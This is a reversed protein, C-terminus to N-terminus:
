FAMGDSIRAWGSERRKELTSKHKAGSMAMGRVADMIHSWKDHAPKDRWVERHADWDKSYNHFGGLTYTCRSDIWLNPLISRVREIGDLIGTRKLVIVNNVGLERLRSLRTKGTSLERVKVDHPAYVHAINYGSSVMRSVYFALGEGNNSYEDVVRWEDHWRQFYLLVFTDDMGLDMCVYTELNEDYLGDVVRNQREVLSKFMAGYYSGDNVKKFAEEATTPYEQYTLDGLERYQGVWFNRQGDLLERGILKEVNEFYELESLSAEEPVDSWCDPDDVWSLFVPLFDKDGYRGRLKAEVARDWIRKFSNDGEATSEIVTTNGRGIAQLTGTMTEIARQPNDNAIKGFESIHLRQLTASRFSTRIFLTSGDSFALEGTNDRMLQLEFAAKLEIPFTNWALKVRKLLLGSEDLGQAMLGINLDGLMLADDLFSILWFTSIGQQRSKLICLRWHILSAAYVRHQAYNMKFPIRMGGKDIITYLNNLRWLKSPLFRQMLDDDDKPTQSLLEWDVKVESYLEKLPLATV